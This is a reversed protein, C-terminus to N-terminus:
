PMEEPDLHHHFLMLESLPETSHSLIGEEFNVLVISSM